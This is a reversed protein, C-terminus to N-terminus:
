ASVAGALPQHRYAEGSTMMAWAIRAMKNALAVAALKRPRRQLLKLPWDTALKNGPPTAIKIVATPGTVLRQCLRENGARSIGGMLQKGGTSHEKPTLGIWAALHRGSQFAAPDVEITLTLAIIPGIGPINALLQSIANARHMATLKAEIEKLRTDLHEIEQGLLALIERVEPLIATKAEIAALLSAIRSIGKPAILGFETAHGGLANVLQNCQCVLTEGVKRVMGQARQEASKTLVFRMGPRDAAERIAEAKNRDNKTRKVFHKVYQLPILRVNHGLASLKRAWHHSSAYTEM